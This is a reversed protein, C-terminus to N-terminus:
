PDRACRFGITPESADVSVPRASTAAVASADVDAYSGGRVLGSPADVWEAVNGALDLVGDPSRGLPFSGCPASRAFADRGAFMGDAACETGCANLRDPAPPEAGWPFPRGASGAAAATWEVDRVLRKQKWECFTIAQARSVCTIPHEGLGAPGTCGASAGAPSCGGASVCDGYERVSVERTDIWFSGVVSPGPGAGSGEGSSPGGSSGDGPTGCHGDGVDGGNSPEDGGNPSGNAGKGKDKGNGKDKGKGKNGGAVDCKEPGQTHGPKHHTPSVGPASLTTAPILVMESATGIGSGSPDINSTDFSPQAICASLAFLGAAVISRRFM